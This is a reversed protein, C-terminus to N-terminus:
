AWLTPQGMLLDHNAMTRQITVKNALTWDVTRRLGESINISVEFQLKERSKETSGFRKGSRDWDRAPKL